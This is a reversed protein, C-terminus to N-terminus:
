KVFSAKLLYDACAKVGEFQTPRSKQGELEVFWDQIVGNKYAQKFINEFNLIGSEGLVEKDKIHLLKIRQPYRKLYDVPDQGGMIIWYVDLEFLVYAPDTSKEYIDWIIQSNPAGRRGVLPGEGGAIVRAFEGDHNHYGFSLGGAKTIKGAETFVEGIFQAEEISRTPPQSPQVLYPVGIAAHHDTATKWFDKIQQLNDKTYERVPPNLHSSVIKLGADDSMKKFEPLTVGHLKGDPAYGALEITSYGYQALKKLGGPIDADLERFLSYIQLGIKKKAQSEAVIPQKTAAHGIRGTLLGGVTFISANRLFERRNSM